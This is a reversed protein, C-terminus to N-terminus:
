LDNECVEFERLVVAEVVTAIGSSPGEVDNRARMQRM